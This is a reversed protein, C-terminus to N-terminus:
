IKGAKDVGKKLIALIDKRVRKSLKNKKSLKIINDLISSVKKQADDKLKTEPKRIDKVKNKQRELRAKKAVKFKDILEDCSPTEKKTEPAKKDDKPEDTETPAKTEVVKRKKKTIVNDVTPGQMKALAKEFMVREEPSTRSDAITAKMNEIEKEKAKTLKAM